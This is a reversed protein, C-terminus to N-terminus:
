AQEQMDATLALHFHALHNLLVLGAARQIVGSLDADCFGRFVDAWFEAESFNPDNQAELRFATFIAGAYEREIGELNRKYKGNIVIRSRGMNDRTYRISRKRANEAFERLGGDTNPDEKSARAVLIATLAQSATIVAGHMMEGGDLPRCMPLGNEDVHEGDDLMSQSMIHALMASYNKTLKAIAKRRGKKEFNIVNTQNDQSM